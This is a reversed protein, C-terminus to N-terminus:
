RRSHSSLSHSIRPPRAGSNISRLTPADSTTSTTLRASRSFTSTISTSAESTWGKSWFSSSSSDAVEFVTAVTSSTTGSWTLEMGLRLASGCESWTGDTGETTRVGSCCFTRVGAASGAFPLSGPLSVYSITSKIYLESSSSLSLPSIFTFTLCQVLGSSSTSQSNTAENILSLPLPPM